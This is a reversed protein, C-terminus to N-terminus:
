GTPWYCQSNEMAQLVVDQMEDPQLQLVQMAQQLYISNRGQTPQDGFYIQRSMMLGVGLMTALTKAMGKLESESPLQHHCRIADLSSKEQQWARALTLSQQTCSVSAPLSFLQDLSFLEEARAPLRVRRKFAANIFLGSCFFYGLTVLSETQLKSQRDGLAELVHGLLVCFQLAHQQLPFYQQNLRNLLAQQVLISSTREFGQFLLAHKVEELQLKMRSRQSATYKLQRALFGETAIHNSIMDVDPEDQKLLDQIALLKAPPKSLPQTHPLWGDSEETDQHSSLWDKDWLRDTLSLSKIGYAARPRIAETIAIVEVEESFSKSRSHYRKILRANPTQSLLIAIGKDQLQIMAGPPVLGFALLLPELLNYCNCPLQRALARLLQHWHKQPPKDRDETSILGVLMLLLQPHSLRAFRQYFGNKQRLPLLRAVPILSSAWIQQELRKIQKLFDDGTTPWSYLDLTMAACMLGISSQPHWRHCHSFLMALLTRKFRLNQSDSYDPFNLQAMALWSDPAQAFSDQLQHAQNFCHSIIQGAPAGDRLRNELEIFGALQEGLAVSLPETM